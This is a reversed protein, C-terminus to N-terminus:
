ALVDFVMEEEGEEAGGTVFRRAQLDFMTFYRGRQAMLDDHTGLEVQAGAARLTDAWRRTTDSDRIESAYVAVRHDRLLLGAAVGSKGLGIIATETGAQRLEDLLSM